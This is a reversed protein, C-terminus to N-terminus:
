APALRGDKTAAIDTTRKDRYDELAERAMERMIRKSEPRALLEDWQKEGARTGKIKAATSM